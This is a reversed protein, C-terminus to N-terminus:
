QSHDTQFSVEWHGEKKGGVRKLLGKKKLKDIHYRIGVESLGLKEALERQTIKPNKEMIKIIKREQEPITKHITKDITKHITKHITDKFSPRHFITTFIGATEKFKVKPEKELILPIGRGWAEVLGIRRLLDAVLPNRRKSVSGQRLEDITLGEYLGGPSRIEVRNKFIAIQIDDPNHYDRHCFANIIAERLAESAIESVDERQMGKLQMGININKLIYRQSEEILTLIDGNFDHQDIIM